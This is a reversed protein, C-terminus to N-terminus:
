YVFGLAGAVRVVCDFKLVGSRYAAACGWEGPNPYPMAQALLIAAVLTTMPGRGSAGL